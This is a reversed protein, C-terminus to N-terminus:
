QGGRLQVTTTFLIGNQGIINEYTQGLSVGQLARFSITVLDKFGPQFSRLFIPQDIDSINDYKISVGNFTDQDTMSNKTGLEPTFVCLYDYPNPAAVPCDENNIGKLCEACNENGQCETLVFDERTFYGNKLPASTKPPNFRFRSFNKGNYLVITDDVTSGSKKGVCIVKEAQRINNALEDMVTQGNQKVQNILKSKNQGRFSQTLISIFIIGLLVTISIVVILEILTFGQNFRKM